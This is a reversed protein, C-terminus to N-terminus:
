EGLLVTGDFIQITEGAGLGEVTGSLTPTNDKTTDNAKVTSSSGPANSTVAAIIPTAAPGETDVQISHTTATSVNGAADRATVSLEVDGQIVNGSDSPLDSGAFKVSWLGGVATATKVVSGVKGPWTVTVVSDPEATGSVVVGATSEQLNIVDDVAVTSVSPTPPATTDIVLSLTKANSSVNGAQDLLVATLQHPGESLEDQVGIELKGAKIHAATLKIPEGIQLSGDRLVVTDGPVAATGDTNTTNFVVTITPTNDKTPNTASLQPALPAIKDLAQSQAASIAALVTKADGGAAVAVAISASADAIASKVALSASSAVGTLSKDLVNGIVSADELKITGGTNNALTTALNSIVENGAGASASNALVAITAVQAAAKQAGTNKSAIPDYALLSENAGLTIGLNKVVLAAAAKAKAEASESSTDSAVLSQVLTSLPNITFSDAPASLSLTNAVGTDTNIGGQVIIAGAPAGKNLFFNGASDTKGAFYDTADVKGNNNLDVYVSANKLYGDAALGNKFDGVYNGFLDQIGAIDSPDTPATYKIGPAGDPWANKMTLRVTHSDLLAVGVIENGALAASLTFKAANPLRNGNLAEDFVLDVTKATGDWVIASGNSILQPALSDVKIDTVDRVAASLVHLAQGSANTISGGNLSFANADLSIGDTDLLDAGVTYEFTLIKPDSGPVTVYNAQVVTAGIKIALSPSGTVTVNEDFTLTFTISPVRSR